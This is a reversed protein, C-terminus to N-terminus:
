SRRWEYEINRDEGLEQIAEDINKRCFAMGRRYRGRVVHYSVNLREAIEAYSLDDWFLLTLVERYKEPIFALSAELNLYMVPRDTGRPVEGDATLDTHRDMQRNRKRHYIAIVNRLIQTMWTNFSSEGRFLHVTKTLQLCVEQVVDDVDTGPVRNAVLHCITKYNEALYSKLDFM